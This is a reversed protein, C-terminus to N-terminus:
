SATRRKNLEQIIQAHDARTLPYRAVIVLAIIWFLLIGPGVALGLSYVTEADVEGPAVGTPFAVVDLAIGAILGGVLIHAGHTLHLEAGLPKGASSLNYLGLVAIVAVM